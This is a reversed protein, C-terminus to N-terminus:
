RLPPARRRDGSCSCTRTWRSASGSWRRRRSPCRPWSCDRGPSGRGDLRGAGVAGPLACRGPRPSGSPRDLATARGRRAGRRSRSPPHAIAHLRDAAFVARWGAAWRVRDAQAERTQEPTTQRALAFRSRLDDSYLEAARGALPTSPSCRPGSPTGTPAPCPWCRATGRAADGRGARRGPGGAPSPRRPLRRRHRTSTRGSPAAPLGIRVGVLDAARRPLGPVAEALSRPDRADHGALLRLLLSVDRMRRAMPGSRTWRCRCRCPATRRCGAQPRGCAPCGAPPPPIRLSGGTDSGLAVPVM